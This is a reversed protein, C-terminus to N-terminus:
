EGANRAAGRGGAAQGARFRASASLPGEPRALGRGTLDILHALVNRGAAGHLRPDVDRYIAAVLDAVGQPRDGLAALIQAERGLRHRILDAVAAQPDAVPPGHGPLYVREPRGRLRHLSAMFDSLDGDPPSVLTSSWGLVHDGSFLADGEVWSLCLHNSLHGPTHLARLTWGAGAVTEGDALLIDPAFAADVGEGGGLGGEAALAAMVPSRGAHAPGFALVPAGTAASLARALPAHDLHAHTVLIHSVREGPDLAALVAALHAPDDPGPDIVAVAGRGLLYTRTGDLTMPGPNPATVVRLDDGLREVGLSEVGSREV